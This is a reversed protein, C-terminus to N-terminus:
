ELNINRDLSDFVKQDISNGNNVRDILEDPWDVKEFQFKTRSHLDIMELNSGTMKKFDESLTDWNLINIFKLRELAEDFDYRGLPFCDIRNAVYRTVINEPFDKLFIEYECMMIDTNEIIRESKERLECWYGFLALRHDLVPRLPLIYNYKNPNFYHGITRENKIFPLLEFFREQMEKNWTWFPIWDGHPDIVNGNINPFPIDGFQRKLNAVINTGGSRPIHLFYFKKKM